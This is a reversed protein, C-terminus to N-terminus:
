PCARFLFWRYEGDFRRIRAELDRAEGSARISSWTELMNERDDPHLVSQWGWGYANAPTLDTYEFWRQNLFECYGDARATWILATLEDVVRSLDNKDENRERNDHM